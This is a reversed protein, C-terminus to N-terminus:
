NQERKSFIVDQPKGDDIDVHLHIVDDGIANMYQGIRRFGGKILGEMMHLYDNSNGVALDVAKGTLHSSDGVAGVLVSNGEASRKGSTIKFKVGAIHRATDLKAVLENELGMIEGDKFYRWKNVRPGRFYFTWGLTKGDLM